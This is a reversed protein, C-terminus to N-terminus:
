GLDARWDDRRDQAFRLMAAWSAGHGDRWLRDWPSIGAEARHQMHGYSSAIRAVVVDPLQRLDEPGLGYGDAFARLRGVVPPPEAWGALSADPTIPVMGMVAYAVDWIPPRPGAADWDILAWRLEGIVLNWAAPDNHCVIRAGSGGWRDSDAEMEPFRWTAGAPPVFGAVADHFRRLLRGACRLAAETGLLRRHSAPWPVEGPIYEVV